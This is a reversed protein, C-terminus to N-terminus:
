RNERAIDTRQYEEPTTEGYLQSINYSLGAEILEKATDANSLIEGIIADCEKGLDSTLYNKYATADTLIKNKLEESKKIVDAFFDGRALISDKNVPPGANNELTDWWIFTGTPDIEENLIATIENLTNSKDLEEYLPTQGSVPEVDSHEVAIDGADRAFM